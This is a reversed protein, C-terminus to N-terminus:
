MLDREYGKNYLTVRVASRTKQNNIGFYNNTNAVSTPRAYSLSIQQPYEQPKSSPVDEISLSSPKKKKKRLIEDKSVSELIENLPTQELPEKSEEQQQIQGRKRLQYKQSDRFNSQTVKLITEVDSQEFEKILPDDLITEKNVRHFSSLKERGIHSIKFTPM